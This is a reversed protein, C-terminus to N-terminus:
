PVAPAGSLVLNFTAGGEENNEAWLRGGHATVISRCIALGLGLGNPKSTVFPAFVREMEDPPIGTGQDAVSLEVGGTATETTQITVRKESHSDAAMADCANVLLNLLVQQLQVRDAFVAPLATALRADVKVRRQLLDSHVLALVETVVENLDLHGPQADEKRLFARQREIVEGARRDDEAIDELIDRLEALDPSSVRLLRQATRANALIATLPQSLEHALASSLAGLVAVRSLHAVELRQEQAEAEARRQETIDRIFFIFCAEGGMEVTDAAITVQRIEGTRTRVEIEYERVNHGAALRERLWDRDGLRVYLGLEEATRGAADSRSYGFVREWMNNVDLIRGDEQRCIGIADPSSRFAKALREESSRLAQDHRVRETVDELFGVMRMIRGDGGRFFHGRDEVWIVQGNKRCCRYTLRFSDESDLVRAIERDFAERDEPHIKDAFTRLGGQMEERSYGLIRQVDGGYTVDNTHPDWDYLLQNSAQIAAEYRSKWESVASHTLNRETVDANVGLLRAPRGTEDFLAMGKAHVWRVKGGPLTIRFESEYPTGERATRQMATAVEDRDDPSLLQLFHDLTFDPPVGDVGFIEKAKDSLVSRDTAIQWEWTGMQAADLALQLRKESRRLEDQARLRERTVASLATLPVAIVILFLQMSFVNEAPTSAVFPGDGAIASDIALLSVGLLFGSTTTPGFRVAAWLLFPLPAYLLAPVTSPGAPRSFVVYSVALLIAALLTAELLRRTPAIRPTEVAGAAVGVIVPVLTLTALVNSLFRLRWNDWYGVAGWANLEVLWADLFSSLGVAVLTALVLINYRRFSDFRAPGPSLWRILGAGILSDVSNSVFWSVVMPVPIGAKLEVFLHTPLAALLVAWWLRPPALLLIAMMVANPPWLTSVPAPRLTLAIGVEAAVFYAAGILLGIAAPRLLDAIPHGRSGLQGPRSVAESM